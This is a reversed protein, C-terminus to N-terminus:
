AFILFFDRKMCVIPVFCIAKERCLTYLDINKTEPIASQALSTIKKPKNCILFCCFYLEILNLKIDCAEIILGSIYFVGLPASTSGYIPASYRQNVINWTNSLLTNLYWSSKNTHHEGFFHNQHFFIDFWCKYEFTPKIYRYVLSNYPYFLFLSKLNRQFTEELVGEPARVRSGLM